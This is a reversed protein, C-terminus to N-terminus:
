SQMHLYFTLHIIFQSNEGCQGPPPVGSSARPLSMLLTQVAAYNGSCPEMAIPGAQSFLLAILESCSVYPSEQLLLVTACTGLIWSTLCLAMWQLHIFLYCLKSFQLFHVQTMSSFEWVNIKVEFEHLDFLDGVLWFYTSTFWSQTLLNFQADALWPELLM